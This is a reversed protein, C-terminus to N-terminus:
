EDGDEFASVPDVPAFGTAPYKYFDPEGDAEAAMSGFENHPDSLETEIIDADITDAVDQAADKTDNNSEVIKEVGHFTADVTVTDRDRRNRKTTRSM